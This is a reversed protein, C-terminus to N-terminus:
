IENVFHSGARSLTRVDTFGFAWDFHAKLGIYAFGFIVGLLPTAWIVKKLKAIETRTM